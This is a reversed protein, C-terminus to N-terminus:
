GKLTNLFKEQERMYKRYLERVIIRFYNAFTLVTVTLMSYLILSLNYLHATALLVIVSLVIAILITPMFAIGPEDVVFDDYKKYLRFVGGFMRKFLWGIFYLYNKM